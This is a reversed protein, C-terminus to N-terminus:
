TIIGGLWQIHEMFLFKQDYTTQYFTLTVTSQLMVCVYDQESQFM